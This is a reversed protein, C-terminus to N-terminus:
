ILLIPDLNYNLSLFAFFIRFLFVTIINIMTVRINSMVTEALPASTLSVAVSTVRSTLSNNAPYILNRWHAIVATISTMVAAPMKGSNNEAPVTIADWEIHM